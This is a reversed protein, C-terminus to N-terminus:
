ITRRLGDLGYLAAVNEKGKGAASGPGLVRKQRTFRQQVGTAWFPAHGLMLVIGARTGVSGVGVVKRAADRYRFRKLLHRHDGPLTRRYSRLIKRM